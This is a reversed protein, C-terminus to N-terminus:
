FLLPFKFLSISSFSLSGSFGLISFSLLPFALFGEHFCIWIGEGRTSSSCKTVEEREQERRMEMFNEVFRSRAEVLQRSTEEFDRGRLVKDLENEEYETEEDDEEEDDADGDNSEEEEKIKVNDKEEDDSIVIIEDFIKYFFNGFSYLIKKKEIRRYKEVGFFNKKTM